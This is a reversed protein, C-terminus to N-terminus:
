LQDLGRSAELYGLADAVIDLAVRLVEMTGTPNRGGLLENAVRQVTWDLCCVHFTLPWMHPGVAKRANEYARTATIQADNWGGPSYSVCGPPELKAGNMTAWARYLTEAARAHRGTVQGRRLYREMPTQVRAGSEITHGTSTIARPEILLRDHQDRAESVLSRRLGSL